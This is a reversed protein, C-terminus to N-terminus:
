ATPVVASAGVEARLAEITAEAERLTMGRLHKMCDLVAQRQREQRPGLSNQAQHHNRPNIGGIMDQFM